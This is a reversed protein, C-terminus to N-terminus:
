LRGVTIVYNEWTEIERLPFNETRICRVIRAVLNKGVGKPSRHLAVRIYYWYWPLWDMNTTKPRRFTTSPSSYSLCRKAVNLYRRESRTAPATNVVTRVPWCRHDEYINLSWSRLQSFWVINDFCYYDIVTKSYIKDLSLIIWQM